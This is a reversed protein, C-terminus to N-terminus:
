GIKATLSVARRLDGVTVISGNIAFVPHDDTLSAHHDKLLAAFPKLAEILKKNQEGTRQAERLPWMLDAHRQQFRQESRERRRQAAEPTHRGCFGRDDVAKFRCPHGRFSGGPSYVTEKCRTM